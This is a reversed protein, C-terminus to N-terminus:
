KKLFFNICQSYVFEVNKKVSFSERFFAVGNHSLAKEASELPIHIVGFFKINDTYICNKEEIKGNKIEM